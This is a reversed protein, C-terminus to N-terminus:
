ARKLMTALSSYVEQGGQQPTIQGFAVKDAIRPVLVNVAGGGKPPPPPLPKTSQEVIDIYRVVAADM